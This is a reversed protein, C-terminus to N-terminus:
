MLEIQLDFPFDKSNLSQRFLQTHQWAVDGKGGSLKAIIQFDIAGQINKDGNCKCINVDIKGEGFNKREFNLSYSKVKLKSANFDFKWIIEAFDSDEIHPFITPILKFYILFFSFHIRKRVRDLWTFWKGIVNLKVCYIKHPINRM